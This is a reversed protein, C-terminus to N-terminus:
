PQAPQALAPKRARYFLYIPAGALVLVTGLASNLGKPLRMHQLRIVPIFEGFKPNATRWAVGWGSGCRGMM